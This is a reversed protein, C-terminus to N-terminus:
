ILLADLADALDGGPFEVARPRLEEDVGAEVPAAVGKASRPRGVVKEENDGSGEPVKDSGTDASDLDDSESSSSSGMTQRSHAVNGRAVVTHNRTDVKAVYWPGNVRRAQLLAEEDDYYQPTVKGAKAIHGKHPARYNVRGGDKQLSYFEAERALKVVKALSPYKGILAGSAQESRVSADLKDIQDVVEALPPCGQMVDDPGAPLVAGKLLMQSIHSRVTPIDWSKVIMGLSTSRENIEDITGSLGFDGLYFDPLQANKEWHVWVNATNVDGHIVNAKHCFDLSELMQRTFRTVIALPIPNRGYARIFRDLEGGNYFDWYSVRTWSEKPDTPLNPIDSHTLLKAIRPTSGRIPKAKALISAIRVENDPVQVDVSDLKHHRVKRVKIEGSGVHWVQQAHSFCGSGLRGAFLYSNGGEEFLHAFKM